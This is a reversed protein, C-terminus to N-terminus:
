RLPANAHRRAAAAVWFDTMTSKFVGCGDYGEALAVARDVGRVLLVANNRGITPCRGPGSTDQFGGKVLSVGLGLLPERDPELQELIVRDAITVVCADARDSVDILIDVQGLADAHKGLETPEAPRIPGTAATSIAHRVTGTRLTATM